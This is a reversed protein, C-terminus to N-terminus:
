FNPSTINSNQLSASLGGPRTNNPCSRFVTLGHPWFSRLRQPAQVNLGRQHGAPTSHLVSLPGHFSVLTSLPPGIPLAENAVTLVQAKTHQSAKRSTRGQEGSCGLPGLGVADQTSILCPQGHKVSCGPCQPGLSQLQIAEAWGLPRRDPALELSRPCSADIRYTLPLRRGVKTM